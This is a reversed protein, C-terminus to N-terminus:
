STSVFNQFHIIRLPKAQFLLHMSYPTFHGPHKTETNLSVKLTQTARNIGSTSLFIRALSDNYSIHKMNIQVSKFKVKQPQM